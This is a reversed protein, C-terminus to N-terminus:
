ARHSGDAPPLWDWFGEEDGVRTIEASFSLPVGLEAVASLLEADLVLRERHHVQGSVDLSVRHGEARLATLEPRLHRVRDLMTRVLGDLAGPESGSTARLAWCGAGDRFDPAENPGRALDPVVGLRRTLEGPDLEPGTILLAVGLSEWTETPSTM